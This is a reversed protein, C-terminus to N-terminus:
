PNWRLTALRESTLQQVSGDTFAVVYTRGHRSQPLMLEPGGSVNWGGETEFFLVTNPNISKEDMGDLRSNFAYHCREAPNGSPCKFIRESGAYSKIADCWTAAPPFHDGHERSYIRAALALQKMNNVCQITQARQKAKAFAPLVMALQVPIMLLFLASVITGALAIGFGGLAGHSKKVQTLAVIGLILGIVAGIGCTFLGLIGCILSAIALGSTKTPQLSPPPSYPASSVPPVRNALAAMFEPFEGLPKWDGGDAQIKTQAGVRGQAIWQNIQDASVPGYEKQDAGIIKYM